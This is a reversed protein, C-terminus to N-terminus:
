SSGGLTEDAMLLNKSESIKRNGTKNALLTIPSMGKIGTAKAVSDDVRKQLRLAPDNFPNLWKGLGSV